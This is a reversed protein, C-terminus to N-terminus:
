LRVSHTLGKQYELSNILNEFPPWLENWTTLATYHDAHGAMLIWLKLSIYAHNIDTTATEPM